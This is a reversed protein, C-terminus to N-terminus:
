FCLVGVVVRGSVGRGGGVVVTERVAVLHRSSIGKGVYLRVLGGHRKVAIFVADNGAEQHLLAGGANGHALNTSTWLGERM